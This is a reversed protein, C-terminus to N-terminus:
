GWSKLFCLDCIVTKLNTLDYIVSNIIKSNKSDLSKTPEDLIFIEPDRLMARAISLRQKEGGSIRQGLEGISTNEKERLSNILNSLGTQKIIPNSIAILLFHTILTIRLYFLM